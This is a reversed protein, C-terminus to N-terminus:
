YKAIYFPFPFKLELKSVTPATDFVIRTFMNYEPSELFQIVQSYGQCILLLCYMDLGFFCPDCLIASNRLFPLPKM